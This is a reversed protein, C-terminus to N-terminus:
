EGEWGLYTMYALAEDEDDISGWDDNHDALFRAAVLMNPALFQYEVEDDEAPSSKSLLEIGYFSAVDVVAGDNEEHEFAVVHYGAESM